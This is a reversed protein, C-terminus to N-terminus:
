TRVRARRDDWDYLVEDWLWVMAVNWARSAWRLGTAYRRDDYGHRERAETRWGDCRSAGHRAM